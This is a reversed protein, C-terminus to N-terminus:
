LGYLDTSPTLHEGVPFYGGTDGASTLGVLDLDPLM